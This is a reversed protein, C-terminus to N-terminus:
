REIAVLARLWNNIPCHRHASRKLWQCRRRMSKLQFKQIPPVAANMPSDYFDSLTNPYNETL